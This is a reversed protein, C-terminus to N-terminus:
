RTTTPSCACTCFTDGPRPLHAHVHVSPTVQDHYTLGFNLVVTDAGLAAALAVHSPLPHTACYDSRVPARPRGPRRPARSASPPQSPPLSLCAPQSRSYSLQAADWPAHRLRGLTSNCVLCRRDPGFGHLDGVGRLILTTNTAKLRWASVSFSGRSLGSQDNAWVLCHSAQWAEINTVTCGHDCASALPARMVVKCTQVMSDPARATLQVREMPMRARQAACILASTQQGMISDGAFYVLRGRLLESLQRIGVLFGGGSLKRAILAAADPDPPINTALCVSLPVRGANNAGHARCASPTLTKAGM